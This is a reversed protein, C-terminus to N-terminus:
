DLVEITEPDVDFGAVIHKFYPEEAQEVPWGALDGELFEPVDELAPPDGDEFATFDEDKLNWGLPRARVRTGLEVEPELPM